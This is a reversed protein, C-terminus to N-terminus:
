LLLLINKKYFESNKDIKIIKILPNSSVNFKLNLEKLKNIINKNLKTSIFKRYTLNIIDEEKFLKELENLYDDLDLSNFNSAPFNLYYYFYVIDKNRVKKDFNYIFNNDLNIIDLISIPVFSPVLSFLMALFDLYYENKSIEENIEVIFHGYNKNSIYLPYVFCNESFINNGFFTSAKILSFSNEFKDSFTKFNNILFNINRRDFNFIHVIKRQFCVAYSKIYYYTPLNIDLYRYLDKESELYVLNKLFIKTNSILKDLINIENIINNEKKKFLREIESKQIKISKLNEFDEKVEENQILKNLKTKLINRFNERKDDEAKKFDKKEIAASLEEKSILISEPTKKGINNNEHM